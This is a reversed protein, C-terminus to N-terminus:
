MLISRLFSSLRNRSQSRAFLPDLGLVCVEDNLSWSEGYLGAERFWDPTRWDTRWSAQQVDATM